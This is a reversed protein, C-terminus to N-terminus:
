SFFFMRESLFAQHKRYIRSIAYLLPSMFIWAAVQANIGPPPWCCAAAAQKGGTDFPGSFLTIDVRDNIDRRRRRAFARTKIESAWAVRANDQGSRSNILEWVRNIERALKARGYSQPVDFRPPTEGGLRRSSRYKIALDTASHSPTQPGRRPAASIEENHGRTLKRRLRASLLAVLSPPTANRVPPCWTRRPRSVSGARRRTHSRSPPGRGKERRGRRGEGGQRM